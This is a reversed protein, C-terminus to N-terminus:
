INYFIYILCINSYSVAGFCSIDKLNQCYRNETDNEDPTGTISQIYPNYCKCLEIAYLQSCALFCTEQNYAFGKKLLARVLNSPYNEDINNECDSYPKALYSSFVRDVQLNTQSGAAVTVGEYFMPLTSKNHVVIRAGTKLHFTYNNVILIKIKHTYVQPARWHIRIILSM